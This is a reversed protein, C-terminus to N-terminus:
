HVIFTAEYNESLPYDKIVIAYITGSPSFSETVRTNAFIGLLVARSSELVGLEIEWQAECCM